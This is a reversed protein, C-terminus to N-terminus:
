LHDASPRGHFAIFGPKEPDPGGTLTQRPEAGAGGSSTRMRGLPKMASAAVTVPNDIM